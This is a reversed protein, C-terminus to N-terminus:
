EGGRAPAPARAQGSHARVHALNVRAEVTSLGASPTAEADHTLEDGLRAEARRLELIRERYAEPSVWRVGRELRGAICGLGRINAETM